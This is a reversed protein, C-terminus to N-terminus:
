LQGEPPSDANGPFLNPTAGGVTPATDNHVSVVYRQLRARRERAGAAGGSGVHDAYPYRRLGM